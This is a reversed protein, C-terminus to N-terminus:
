VHARGIESILSLERGSSVGLRELNDYLSTAIDTHFQHLGLLTMVKTILTMAFAIMGKLHISMPDFVLLELMSKWIINVFTNSLVTFDVSTSNLSSGTTTSQQSQTPSSSETKLFYTKMILRLLAIGDVVRSMRGALSVHM